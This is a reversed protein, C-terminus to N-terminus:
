EVVPLLIGVKYIDGDVAIVLKGGEAQIIRKAESLEKGMKAADQGLAEDKITNKMMYMMKGNQVYIEIYARSDEKAYNAINEFLTSLVKIANTKDIDLLIPSGPARLTVGISKEKLKVKFLKRIDKNLQIFEVKDDETVAEELVAAVAEPISDVEQKTPEPTEQEGLSELVKATEESSLIVTKETVPGFINEVTVAREEGSQVFSGSEVSEVVKSFDINEWDNDGAPEPIDQNELVVDVVTEDIGEDLEEPEDEIDEGEGFICSIFVILEIVFIIPAVIFIIPINAATFERLNILAFALGGNLLLLFLIILLAKVVKPLKNLGNNIRSGIMYIISNRGFVGAKIRRVMSFYGRIAFMYILLLGGIKLYNAFPISDHTRLYWVGFSLGGIAAILILVAAETVIEDFWTLRIGQLGKRRGTSIVCFILLVFFLLIGVIGAIRAIKFNDTLKSYGLYSDYFAGEEELNNNVSTYIAYTNGLTSLKEQWASKVLGKDPVGDKVMFDDEAKTSIKIWHGSSEFRKVADEGSSFVVEPTEADNYVIFSFNNDAKIYSAVFDAMTQSDANEFTDANQELSEIATIINIINENYVESFSKSDFYNTTFTAGVYRDDIYKYSIYGSVAVVIVSLMLLIRAMIKIPMNKAAMFKEDIPVEADSINYDEAMDKNNNTMEEPQIVDEDVEDWFDRKKKRAM